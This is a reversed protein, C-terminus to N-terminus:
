FRSTKQIDIDIGIDSNEIKSKKDIVIINKNRKKEVRSTGLYFSASHGISKSRVEDRRNSNVRLLKQLERKSDWSLDPILDYPTRGSNDAISKSAGHALLQEVIDLYGRKAAIHLATQGYKDRINLYTGKDILYSAIGLHGYYIAEELATGYFLGGKRSLPIKQNVLYEVVEPKRFRVAYHLLTDDNPSIYDIPIKKLLKKTTAVGGKIARVIEKESINASAFLTTNVIFGILFIYLTRKLM